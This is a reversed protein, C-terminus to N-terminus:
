RSSLPIKAKLAVEGDPTIIYSAGGDAVTQKVIWGKALMGAITQKGAPHLKSLPLSKQASMKQLASRELNHPLHSPRASMPKLGLQALEAFRHDHISDLCRLVIEM